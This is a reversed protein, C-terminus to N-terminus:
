VSGMGANDARLVVEQADKRSAERYFVDLDSVKVMRHSANSATSAIDISTKPVKSKGSM